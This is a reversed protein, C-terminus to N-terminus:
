LVVDILQFEAVLVVVLVVGEHREELKYEADKGHNKGQEPDNLYAEVDEGIGGQGREQVVVEPPEVPPKREESDQADSYEAYVQLEADNLSAEFESYPEKENGEVWHLHVTGVHIGEEEVEAQDKETGEWHNLHAFAALTALQM